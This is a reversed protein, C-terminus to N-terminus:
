VEAPIACDFAELLPDIEGELALTELTNDAFVLRAGPLPSAALPEEDDTLPAAGVMVARVSDVTPGPQDGDRRSREHRVTAAESEPEALRLRGSAQAHLIARGAAVRAAQQHTAEQEFSYLADPLSPSILIPNRLAEIEDLLGLQDAILLGTVDLILQSDTWSGPTELREGRAGHRMLIVRQHVRNGAQGDLRYIQAMSGILGSPAIHIPIVGELLKDNIAQISEQREHILQGIEEMTVARIDTAGSEARTNLRAMLGGMEGDLGLRYGQNLANLLHDEKVGQRVGARWLDVALARDATTVAVSYRVATNPGVAGDRLLRRIPTLAGQVNGTALLLGVLRHRDVAQATDALLAQAAKVAEGPSAESLASIEIRRISPSLPEGLGDRHTELFALTETPSGVHHLVHLALSLPVESDFAAIRDIHPELISWRGDAALTAALEIADLRPPNEALLDPLLDAAATLDATAGAVIVRDVVDPRGGVTEGADTEAPKGGLLGIWRRVEALAAQDLTTPVADLRSVVTEPALGDRNLWIVILCHVQDRTAMGANLRTPLAETPPTLDRGDDRAVSWFAAELCLPDEDLLEACLQTAEEGREPLASLCAVAWLRSGSIQPAEAHLRLFEEAAAARRALSLSDQRITSPPTPNPHFAISAPTFPSLGNVYRVIALTQRANLRDPTAAHAREALELSEPWRRGYYAALA